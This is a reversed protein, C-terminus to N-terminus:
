KGEQKRATWVQEADGEKSNRHNIKMDRLNNGHEGGGKVKKSQTKTGGVSSENWALTKTLPESM